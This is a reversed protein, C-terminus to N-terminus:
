LQSARQVRGLMKFKCSIKLQSHYISSSNVPSSLNYFSRTVVIGNSKSSVISKCDERNMTHLAVLKVLCAETIEFGQMHQQM